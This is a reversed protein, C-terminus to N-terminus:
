TLHATVSFASAIAQAWTLYQARGPSVEGIFLPSFRVLERQDDNDHLQLFKGSSSPVSVKRLGGSGFRKGSRQLFKGSSSPVSVFVSFCCLCGGQVQLFKGSSSPVSVAKKAGCPLTFEKQLFKGSSSPVSVKDSVIWRMMRLDQLFKGSSSPVSVFILVDRPPLKQIEPSVEGIFLPSFCEVM